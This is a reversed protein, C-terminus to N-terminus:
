VKQTTGDGSQSYYGDIYGILGDIGALGSIGLGVTGITMDVFVFRFFSKWSNGSPDTFNLPNNLVYSYRNFNQTFDPAQVFNDPSLMRALIPDYLRGNMNILGFEPLMEHGTYGRGNIISSQNNDITYEWTEPNRM